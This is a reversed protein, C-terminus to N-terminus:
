RNCLHAIRHIGGGICGRTGMERLFEKICKRVDEDTFEFQAAINKAEQILSVINRTVLPQLIDSPM